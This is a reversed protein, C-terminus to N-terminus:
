RNVRAYLPLLEKGRAVTKFKSCKLILDGKYSGRGQKIAELTAEDLTITKIVDQTPFIKSFLDRIMGPGYFKNLSTRLDVLEWSNKDVSIYLIVKQIQAVKMMAVFKSSEHQVFEIAATYLQHQTDTLDVPNGDFDGVSLYVDGEKIDRYIVIALGEEVFKKIVYVFQGKIEPIDEFDLIRPYALIDPINSIGLLTEESPESRQM